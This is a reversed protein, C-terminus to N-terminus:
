QRIEHLFLAPKLFFPFGLFFLFFFVAFKQTINSLNIKNAFARFCNETKELNNGFHAELNVLVTLNLM